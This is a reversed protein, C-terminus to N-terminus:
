FAEQSAEPIVQVDEVAPENLEILLDDGNCRRIWHSLTQLLQATNPGQNGRGEHCGNAVGRLNPLPRRSPRMM